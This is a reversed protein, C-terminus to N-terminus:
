DSRRHGRGLGEELSLRGTSGEDVVRQGVHGVAAEPQLVRGGVM